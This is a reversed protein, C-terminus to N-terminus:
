QFHAKIVRVIDVVDPSLSGGVRAVPDYANKLVAIALGNDVEGFAICGGMGAHSM